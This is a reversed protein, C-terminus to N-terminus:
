LFIHFVQEPIEVESIQENFNDYYYHYYYHM